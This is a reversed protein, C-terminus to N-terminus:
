LNLPPLTLRFGAGAETPFLELRGGHREALDRSIALGLGTGAQRPLEAHDLRIFREFIREEDGPPIGLGRDTVTIESPPGPTVAIRIWPKDLTYTLANNILNDLIRALHDPDARVPVPESPLDAVVEAGLLAARPECRVLSDRVSSRLDFESVATPMTGAELRAAVLLDEVLGGLEGSKGSLVSLPHTWPQPVPGFTGDRLMSLYGSIVSLPTRLEHAALNMFDSKTRSLDHAQGYLEANRLAVAAANGILQLLEIDAKAFPSDTRRILMLIAGVKGVLVLPIIATHRTGEHTERSRADLRAEDFGEGVKPRGTRVARDTPSGFPIAYRDGYPIPRGDRDYGDEVILESGEVLALSARDAGVSEVARRLLRKIVERYDLASALELTLELGTKLRDNARNAADLLEARHLTLSVRKGFEDMLVREEASFPTSGVRYFGLVGMATRGDPLEQGTILPILRGTDIAGARLTETLSSEAQMRTSEITRTESMASGAITGLWPWERGVLSEAWAGSGAVIRLHSPREPPVMSILCEAAPVIETAQRAVVEAVENFPAIRWLTDTSALIAELRRNGARAQEFLQAVHVAAALPSAVLQLLLVDQDTFAPRDARRLAAIVGMLAGGSRLPVGVYPGLDHREAWERTPEQWRSERVSALLAEGSRRVVAEPTDDSLSDRHSTEGPFGSAVIWGSGTRFTIVAVEADLVSAARDVGLALVEELEVRSNVEAM